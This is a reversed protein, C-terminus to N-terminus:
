AYPASTASRLPSIVWTLLAAAGFACLGWVEAHNRHTRRRGLYYTTAYLVSDGVINAWSEPEKTGFIRSGHREHYFEGLEYAAAAGGAVLPSVGLLGMGLGNLAHVLSWQDVASVNVM